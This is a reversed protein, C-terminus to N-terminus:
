AAGRLPTPKFSHNPRSARYWFVVALINITPLTISFILVFTVFLDDGGNRSWSLVTSLVAILLGASLTLGNTACAIITSGIAPRDQLLAWVTICPQILGILAGGGLLIGSLLVGVAIILNLVGTAARMFRHVRM